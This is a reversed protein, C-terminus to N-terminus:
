ESLENHYNDFKLKHDIIDYLEGSFWSLSYFFALYKTM